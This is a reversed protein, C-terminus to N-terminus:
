PEPWRQNRNWLVKSIKWNDWEVDLVNPRQYDVELIPGSVANTFRQNPDTENLNNIHGIGVMVTLSNGATRTITNQFFFGLPPNLLLDNVERQRVFYYADINATYIGASVDSPARFNIRSQYSPILPAPISIVRTPSIRPDSPQPPLKEPQSCSAILLGAFSAVTTRAFPHNLFRPRSKSM